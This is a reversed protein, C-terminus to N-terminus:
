LSGADCVRVNTTLPAPRIYETASPSCPPASQSPLWSLTSGDDEEGIWNTKRRGSPRHCTKSIGKKFIWNDCAASYWFHASSKGASVAPSRSRGDVWRGELFDLPLWDDIHRLQPSEEM